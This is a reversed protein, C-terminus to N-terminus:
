SVWLYLANRLGVGKSEWFTRVWYTKPEFHNECLCSYFYMCVFACMCARVGIMVFVSEEIKIGRQMVLPGEKVEQRQPFRKQGRDCMSQPVTESRCKGGFFSLTITLLCPVISAGGIYEVPAAPMGWPLAEPSSWKEEMLSDACRVDPIIGTNKQM